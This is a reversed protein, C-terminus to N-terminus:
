LKGETDSTTKKETGSEDRYSISYQTIEIDSAPKTWSVTLDTHGTDKITPVDPEVPVSAQVIEIVQAVDEGIGNTGTCTYSKFEFGADLTISATSKNDATSNTQVGNSMLADEWNVTPAPNGKFSCEM